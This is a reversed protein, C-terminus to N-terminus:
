QAIAIFGLSAASRLSRLTDKVYPSAVTGTSRAVLTKATASAIARYLLSCLGAPSKVQQLHFPRLCAAM